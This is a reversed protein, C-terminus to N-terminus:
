ALPSEGQHMSVGQVSYGADSNIVSGTMFGAAPSAIFAALNGIDEPTGIRGLPHYQKVFEYHKAIVEDPIGFYSLASSYVFGPCIANVRIGSSAWEAAMAKTMQLMAAKAIGYLPMGYVHRNVAVSSINIVNGRTEALAPFCKRTLLLVNTINSTFAFEVQEDTLADLPPVISQSLANNVLIDLRGCTALTKDILPQFSSRDDLNFQMGTAQYGRGRLEDAFRAAEELTRSTVIVHGGHRVIAEAIGRGIGKTSGTVIAVKGSLDISSKPTQM